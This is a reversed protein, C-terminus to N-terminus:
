RLQSLHHVYCLVPQTCLYSYLSDLRLRLTDSPSSPESVWTERIDTETPETSGTSETDQSSETEGEPSTTTSSGMLKSMTLSAHMAQDATFSRRLPSTARHSVPPGTSLNPAMPFGRRKRSAPSLSFNTKAMPTPTAPATDLSSSAFSSDALSTDGDPTPEVGEHVEEPYGQSRARPQLKSIPPTYTPTTSILHAPSFLSSSRRAPHWSSRRSNGASLVMPSPFARASMPNWSSRRPNGASLAMPTPYDRIAPSDHPNFHPTASHSAPSAEEAANVREANAERQSQWVEDKSIKVGHSYTGAWPSKPNSSRIADSVLSNAHNVAVTYEKCRQELGSWIKASKANAEREIRAFETPNSPKIDEEAFVISSRLRARRYRTRLQDNRLKTFWNALHEGMGSLLAPSHPPPPIRPFTRLSGTQLWDRYGESTDSLSSAPSGIPSLEGDDKDPPLTVLTSPTDRNIELRLTSHSGRVLYTAPLDMKGTEADEIEFKVSFGPSDHGGVHLTIPPARGMVKTAATTAAEIPSQPPTFYATPPTPPEAWGVLGPHCHCKFVEERIRSVTDFLTDDSIPVTTCRLATICDHVAEGLRVTKSANAGVLKDYEDRSKDMTELHTRIRLNLANRERRKTALLTQLNFM